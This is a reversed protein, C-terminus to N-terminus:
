TAVLEQPLVKLWIEGRSPSDLWSACDERFRERMRQTDPVSLHRELKLGYPRGYHQQVGALIRRNAASIKAEDRFRAMPFWCAPVADSFPSLNIGDGLFDEGFSELLVSM